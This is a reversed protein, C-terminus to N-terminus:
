RRKLNLSPKLDVINWDRYGKKIQWHSPDPFSKWKYGGEINLKHEKIIDEMHDIINKYAEAHDWTPKGDIYPVIDLARGYLHQSKLTKTVGRKLYARQTKLTRVGELIIFDFDVRKILLRAAFGLVPDVGVLSSKSKVGLFFMKSPTWVLNLGVM